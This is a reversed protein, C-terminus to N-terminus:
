YLVVRHNGYAYVLRYLVHLLTPQLLTFRGNLGHWGWARKTLYEDGHLAIWHLLHLTRERGSYHTGYDMDMM